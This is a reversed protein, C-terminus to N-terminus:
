HNQGSDASIFISNTWANSNSPDDILIESGNKWYLPIATGMLAPGTLVQGALYIDENKVVIANAMSYGSSDTIAVPNGNKWYKAVFYNNDKFEAGAVYVDNGSITVANARAFNSGDTLAFVSGNKWYKAVLNGNMGTMESGAVYVDNGTVAISYAHAEVSGNTLAFPVGNKWYMAISNPGATEGAAYVDNGIVVIDFAVAGGKLSVATGNKWYRAIVASVNGGPITSAYNSDVESGAVYVDSGSVAISYAIAPSLGGTLPFVNKNKWYKAVYYSGNYEFGAVYVNTDSVVISEAMAYNTGDTLTVAKGNKWYTAYPHIGDGSIGALYIDGGGPTQVKKNPPVADERELSYEKTCSFLVISITLVLLFLRRPFVKNCFPKVDAPNYPNM